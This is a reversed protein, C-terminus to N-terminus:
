KIKMKIQISGEEGITIKKVGKPVGLTKALKIIENLNSRLKKSGHKIM